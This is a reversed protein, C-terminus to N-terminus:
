PFALCDVFLERFRENGALEVYQIKKALERARRRENMSVLMMGAGTSAANGLGLVRYEEVPPLIGIRQASRRDMYNGFAGALLVRDLEEVDMGAKELLVMTGAAVAAKALQLNRIDPQSIFLKKPRRSIVVVPGREQDEVLMHARSLGGRRDLVGSDLLAAVADVLGSGAIGRAPRGGITEVEIRYRIDRTGQGSAGKGRAGDGAGQGTGGADM